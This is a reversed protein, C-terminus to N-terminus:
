IGLEMLIQASEKSLNFRTKADSTIWESFNQKTYIGPMLWYFRFAKLLERTWHKGIFRNKRDLEGLPEYQQPYPRIGLRRCEAMRYFAEKPTDNFNFLVYAMLQSKPVGATLLTEIAKQFVGDEEIRDFALRMGNRTFKLRALEQAMEVTIHKCDFGNDFVVKKKKQVLYDIVAKIHAEPQASLNNDSIMVNPKDAIIHDRWNPVICQEPEIRWVSCYACRNPCGRSTFLFSFTDWPEEVQWDISYDPVTEDLEKDCGKFVEDALGNFTDKLLSAAVGGLIIPTQPNMFRASQLAEIIQKSQFTFLSTVCLLDGWNTPNRTYLVEGGNKKVYSAIKALGLPPYKRAYNPEILQVKKAKSLLERM